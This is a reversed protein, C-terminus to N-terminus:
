VDTFTLTLSRSHRGAQLNARAIAKFTLPLQGKLLKGDGTSNSKKAILTDSEQIAIFQSSVASLETNGGAKAYSGVQVSLDLDPFTGDLHATLAAAGDSQAMNNGIVQYIVTESNTESGALYHDFSLQMNPQDATIFLYSPIEVTVRNTFTESSAVSDPVSPFLLAFALLLHSNRNFATM